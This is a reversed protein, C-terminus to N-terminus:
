KVSFKNKHTPYLNKYYDDRMLGMRVSDYYRSNRYIDQKLVGERVYGAKEYARVGGKNEDTVGLYVRNLNLRDFGYFDILDTMETGFGKGWYSQNGIIIRMEAKRATHDIEYLGVLGVADGNAIDVAIFITNEESAVDKEIQARIQEQTKPRQGTFMYYTVLPDNFWTFILRADDAEYPRLYVREGKLFM